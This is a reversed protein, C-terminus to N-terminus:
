PKVASIMYNVSTDRSIRWQGTLPNLGVGTVDELELETRRLHGALESPKIFREWQHTGRPLWRLVYEAGVIALAYSKFTRNLTAMFLVGGPALVDACATVFAAPDTVHEIVEMSVVVDFQEDGAALAEVSTRQYSLGLHQNEAHAQAVAILDASEDIGTVEAGLRALPESLVGGGCGVDLLRIGKLPLPSLPDVGTRATIRDRIYGVRVPNLRHLLAMNGSEDWWTGALRDFRSIEDPDVTAGPGQGPILTEPM